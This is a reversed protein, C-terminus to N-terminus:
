NKRVKVLSMVLGRLIEFIRSLFLRPHEVIGLSFLVSLGILSVKSSASRLIPRGQAGELIQKVTDLPELAPTSSLVSLGKSQLMAHALGEATQEFNIGWGYTQIQDALSSNQPALVPVNFKRSDLLRGSSGFKYYKDLYPLVVVSTELMLEAYQASSLTGTLVKSRAVIHHDRYLEVNSGWRPVFCYASRAAGDLSKEYTEIADLCLRIEEKGNVFFTFDYNKAKFTSDLGAIACLPYEKPTSGLVRGLLLALNGTEAYLTAVSRLEQSCSTLAARALFGSSLLIQWPDILNFNFSFKWNVHRRSLGLTLLLERLGGEYIHVLVNEHQGFLRSIAEIDRLVKGM